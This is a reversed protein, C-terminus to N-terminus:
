KKQTTKKEKKGDIKLNINIFKWWWKQSNKQQNKRAQHQEKKLIRQESKQKKNSNKPNRNLSYEHQSHNSHMRQLAM